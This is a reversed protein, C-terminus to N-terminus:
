SPARNSRALARRESKRRHQLWKRRIPRATTAHQETAEASVRSAGGPWSDLPGYPSQLEARPLWTMGEAPMCYTCRLNCRDTLSIRLDTALRGFSDALLPVVVHEAAGATVM